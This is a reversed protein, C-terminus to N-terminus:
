LLRFFRSRVINETSPASARLSMNGPGTTASGMAFSMLFKFNESIEHSAPRGTRENTAM